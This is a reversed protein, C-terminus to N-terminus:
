LFTMKHRAQALLSAPHTSHWWSKDGEAGKAAVAQLLTSGRGGLLLLLHFGAECVLQRVSRDWCHISCLQCGFMGSM